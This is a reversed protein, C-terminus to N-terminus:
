RALCETADPLEWFLSTDVLECLLEGHGRLERMCGAVAATSSSSRVPTCLLLALDGMPPSPAAGLPWYRPGVDGNETPREDRKGGYQIAPVEKYQTKAINYEGLAGFM